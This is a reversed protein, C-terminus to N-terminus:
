SRECNIGFIKWNGFSDPEKVMHLHIISNRREENIVLISNTKCAKFRGGTDAKILYKYDSGGNLIGKIERMDVNTPM